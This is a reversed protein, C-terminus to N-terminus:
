QLQAVAGHDRRDVHPVIRDDTRFSVRYRAVDNAGPVTVLFRTSTGPLLAGGIAARQSAIFAGSRDFLFVIATLRDLEAGGEPNRVVGRITLRDGDRDHGLSLLEIPRDEVAAGTAAAARSTHSPPASGVGHDSMSGGHSVLMSVAALTGVVFVGVGFATAYRSAASSTPTSGAFLEGAESVAGSSGRHLELDPYLDSTLAAVRAARRRRDTRVVRWAIAAMVGALAVSAVSVAILMSEM